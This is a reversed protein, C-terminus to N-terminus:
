ECISEQITKLKPRLSRRGRFIDMKLKGMSVGLQSAIGAYDMDEFHYLVLAARQHAPLTTLAQAVMQRQNSDLLSTEVQPAAAAEVWRGKADRDESTLDTFTKWRARYRQLFDHASRHLYQPL